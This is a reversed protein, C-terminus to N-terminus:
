RKLKIPMVRGRNMGDHLRKADHGFRQLVRVMSVNGQPVQKERTDKVQLLVLLDEQVVGLPRFRM